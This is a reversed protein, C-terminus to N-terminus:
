RLVAISAATIGLRLPKNNGVLAGDLDALAIHDAGDDGGFGARKAAWWTEFPLTHPNAENAYVVFSGAKGDDRSLNPIGNSMLYVGEDGVLMLSPKARRKSGYPRQHRTASRAHQLLREVGAREFTYVM